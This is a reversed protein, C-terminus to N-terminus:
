ITFFLQSEEQVKTQSPADAIHTECDAGPWTKAAGGGILVLLVTRRRMVDPYM